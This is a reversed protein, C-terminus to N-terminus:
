QRAAAEPRGASQPTDASSHSCSVGLIVLFSGAIEFRGLSEGLFGWAMLITMIPTLYQMITVLNLSIRGMAANWAYFGLATPFAALYFLLGWVIGSQPLIIGGRRFSTILLLSLSAFLMSWVTVALDNKRTVTKKAYIAAISWSLASVFVLLDGKINAPSYTLGHESVVGIVMMCGFTALAMGIGRRLSIKEGIFLGLLITLIPASSMIMSANVATTYRQGWFLFVSMGVISFQSLLAVHLCDRKSLVFLSGPKLALCLLFLLVWGLSFRLLSLTVPDIKAEEGSMLWRIAVYVTAWLFASLFSWFVGPNWSQHIGNM